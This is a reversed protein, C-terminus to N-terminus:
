PAYRFDISAMLQHVLAQLPEQELYRSAWEIEEGNPDRGLTNRYAMLITVDHVAVTDANERVSVADPVEIRKAAAEARAQIWPSNMLTLAQTAVTSHDRQATPMSPNAGDFERILEPLANRLWPLYVARYGVAHRFRYDEKTGAPLTSEMNSTFELEGSAQLLSDRLSEADLRRLRGRAFLRNEPDADLAHAGAVAARRYAQSSVIARVLRKTSWAHSQFDNALWDLLEPDSPSDGTTGFNDLTRVIGAGMLAAWVRNVYVRAPLPNKWDTMWRALEMRGNATGEIRTSRELDPEYANICSLFGRPVVDSLRHVSGRVHIPIDSPTPAPRMSQVMPRQDLVSQADELERELRKLHELDVAREAARESADVDALSDDGSTARTLRPDTGEPVFQVADVIVHGDSGDNSIIVFAQGGSEFRYSGLTQWLGDDGAPTRQNIRHESEGEASFVRVLTKSSRNAGHAYSIRVAYNGTTLDTPEFTASKEGAAQHEDHLYGADIYEPVSRSAQWLGVKIADVDDIVIGAYESTSSVLNTDPRPDLRRRLSDVEKRLTQQVQTANDFVKREDMSLPLPVRVWKSVNDHDMAVSSKLIGALAYYDRTPIPDFKHDHCRACGLTQGLVSRGIMELQEDIADMELQQKDQEEYNHDGLVLATTATWQRQADPISAQSMLDGAIQEVIFQDYPMDSNFADILYNRFRWVDSLIMGRLTLSEAYRVVDMWGRAWREGYRPSALMSDLLRERTLAAAAADSPTFEHPPASKNPPAWKGAPALNHQPALKHPRALQELWYQTEDYTPNLGHLDVFLRRLWQSDNVTESVPLGLSRQRASLFSDIATAPHLATGLVPSADPPRSPLIPRYAWHERARDVPLATNVSGATDVSPPSPSAPEAFSRPVQAGNAIWRELSAIKDDSLRSDPPMQLEPDRYNVARLLLSSEADGPVLASGSDGGQLMVALSDLALGGNTETGSAHCEFCHEILLPRVQSEFQDIASTESALQANGRSSLVM